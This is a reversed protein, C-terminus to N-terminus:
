TWAVTKTIHFNAVFESLKALCTQFIKSGVSIHKAFYKLLKSLLECRMAPRCCQLMECSLRRQRKKCCKRQRQFNRKKCSNQDDKEASWLGSRAESSQGDVGAQLPPWFFLYVRKVLVSPSTKSQIPTYSM